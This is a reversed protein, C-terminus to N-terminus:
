NLFLLTKEKILPCEKIPSNSYSNWVFLIYVKVCSLFSYKVNCLGSM